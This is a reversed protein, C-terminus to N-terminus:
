ESDGNREIRWHFGRDRTIEAIQTDGGIIAFAEPDIKKAEPSSCAEIYGKVYAEADGLSPVSPLPHIYESFSSDRIPSNKNDYMSMRVTQSGALVPFDLTLPIVAFDCDNGTFHYFETMCIFEYTGLYGAFFLTAIAWGAGDHAKRIKPFVGLVGSERANAISQNLNKSIFRVYKKYDSFNEAQLSETEKKIETLLDFRFDNSAVLGMLAYAIKSEPVYFIKRAHETEKALAADNAMARSKEDLKMRGDSGFIFGSQTRVIGLATM